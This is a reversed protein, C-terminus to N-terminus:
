GSKMGDPHAADRDHSNINRMARGFDMLNASGNEVQQATVRPAAVPTVGPTLPCPEQASARQAVSLVSALVLLGVVRIISKSALLTQLKM